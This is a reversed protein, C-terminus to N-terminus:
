RARLILRARLLERSPDVLTVGGGAREVNLVQPAFPGRLTIQRADRAVPAALQAIPFRQPEGQGTHHVIADGDRQFIGVERGNVHMEWGAGEPTWTITQERHSGNIWTLEAAADPALSSALLFLLAFFSYDLMM